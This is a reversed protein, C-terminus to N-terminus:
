VYHAAFSGIEIQLHHRTLSERFEFLICIKQRVCPLITFKTVCKLTVIRLSILKNAVSRLRSLSLQLCLLVTTKSVVRAAVGWEVCAEAPM